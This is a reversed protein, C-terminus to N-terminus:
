LPVAGSRSRGDQLHGHFRPHVRCTNPSALIVVASSSRMVCWQWMRSVPLSEQRNRLLEAAVRVRALYPVV